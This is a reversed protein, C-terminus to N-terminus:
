ENFDHKLMKKYKYPTIGIISNFLKSFHQSDKLGIQSAIMTLSMDTTTMLDIAQNIRYINIYNSITLNMQRFFIESLYRTSIGLKDSIDGILIKSDYHKHIYSLTFSVYRNQRPAYHKSFSFDTELTELVSLLLETIYLNSYSRSFFHDEQTSTIIKEILSAMRDTIKAKYFVNCCYYLSSIMDIADEPNSSGTTNLYLEQFYTPDFHIHNFTCPEKCTLYFSHVINPMIIVIDDKECNIIQNKIEMSCTGSTLQYVEISKHIHKAFTYFNERHQKVASIIAQDSLVFRTEPGTASKTNSYTTYYM